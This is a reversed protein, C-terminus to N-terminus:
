DGKLAIAPDVAAARRSPLYTALLCVCVLSLGVLGYTLPDTASIQFLVARLLRGAALAAAGGCLVGMGALKLGDRVFMGTLLRPPAGLAVRIGIERTRQSVSYAIVGYLGVIGLLLAMGGAVGLLTVMFSTRAMSRRYLSDLTRISYLPLNPNVSWVAQRMDKTLADSGARPTRLVFTATRRVQVSSGEFANMIMPWYVIPVAQESVGDDFVDGVVGVIERWDDTTAVRIRKGIAQQPTGWYDVAFNRSIIAVPTRAQLDFATLDRGAVLPTGVTDFYGPTVFKFRRLKPLEGERYTHDQAFVPDTWHDGDLPVSSAVAVASVGPIGRLRLRIDEQAQIARDPENAVAESLFARFLQLSEPHRFGPDVRTMALFTRIMLTSGVLLVLALAVQAIVLGNRVRHQERGETLSRGGDRLGTTPRAATYRLIPLTGFLLSALMAIVFTFIATAADLRVEGLRPIGVPEAAVFARLGVAALIVGIAGAAAGVTFAEVLLEGAIRRRSAGLATRLALERRRAELRVLWLNAVNACAIVLVIGICGMLVGLLGGIDGVVDRKLPRINPEVHAQEFLSLPFGQPAPFSRLVIPWMRAIDANADAITVGPKLRALGRYSFQGLKTEARDLRMPLVLDPDREDLFHFDSPLVGVIQRATGDVVLSQGLASTSGGFKRLWCAHGLVVTEPTKPSDDDKTFLRGAVPAVGLLPLVGDTVLLGPVQEPEGTGTVGFQAGNYMGIDQFSASQERFVFYNSPAINLDQINLSPASQWVGVFRDAEPYPLPKLLVGNVVGFMAANAGIAVALTVVAVVTFRPSRALRRAAQKFPGAASKM